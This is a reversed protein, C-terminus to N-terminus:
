YRFHFVVFIYQVTLKKAPATHVTDTIHGANGECPRKNGGTGEHRSNATNGDKTKILTYPVALSLACVKFHFFFAGVVVIIRRKDTRQKRKMTFPTRLKKGKSAPPLPLPSPLLSPLSFILKTKNTIYKDSHSAFVSPSTCTKLRRTNLEVWQDRGYAPSSVRVPIYM